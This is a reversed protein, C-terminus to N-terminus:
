RKFVHMECDTDFKYENKYGKIDTYRLTAPEPTDNLAFIVDAANRNRLEQMLSDNSYYRLQNEDIEITKRTLIEAMILVDKVLMHQVDDRGALENLISDHLEREKKAMEDM